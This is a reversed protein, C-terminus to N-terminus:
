SRAAPESDATVGGDRGADNDGAGSENGAGTQRTHKAHTQAPLGDQLDHVDGRVTAMDRRTTAILERLEENKDEVESVREELEEVRKEAAAAREEADEVRIHLEEILTYLTRNDPNDVLKLETTGSQQNPQM